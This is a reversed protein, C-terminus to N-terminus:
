KIGIFYYDRMYTRIGLDPEQHQWKYDEQAGSIINGQYVSKSGKYVSIKLRSEPIYATGSAVLRMVGYKRFVYLTDNKYLMEINKISIQADDLPDEMASQLLTGREIDAAYFSCRLGEYYSGANDSTVNSFAAVCIINGQSFMETFGIHPTGNETIYAYNGQGQTNKPIQGLEIENEFSNTQLNFPRMYLLGNKVFLYILKNETAAMDVIQIKGDELDLPAINPLNIKTEGPGVPVAVVSDGSSVTPTKTQIWGEKHLSTIDYIGGYGFCNSDTLTYLYLKDDQWLFGKRETLGNYGRDYGNGDGSVIGSLGKTMNGSWIIDSPFLRNNVSYTIIGKGIYSKSRNGYQDEEWSDPNPNLVVDTMEISCITPHPYLSSDIYGRLYNYQEYLERDTVFGYKKDWKNNAFTFATQQIDDSLVGYFEVENLYSRDGSEDQLTLGDNYRKPYMLAFSSLLGALVVIACVILLSKKFIRM